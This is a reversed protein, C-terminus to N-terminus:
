SSAGDLNKALAAAGAHEGRLGLALLAEYAAWREAEKRTRGWASPFLRGDCRAAVLYARAHALGHEGQVEYEPPPGGLAQFHEQLEQKPNAARDHTRLRSLPEELTAQCFSQAAAFGADLYVAGVVAEYLNAMVSAPLTRQRLGAGVRALGALGLERAAEALSQRSVVAAKLETMAGESLDPRGRYLESAVVLDLVADGLFELRENNSAGDFSAHTLALELLEPASFRHHQM